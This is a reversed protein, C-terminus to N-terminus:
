VFLVDHKSRPGISAWVPKNMKPHTFKGLFLGLSRIVTVHFNCTEHSSKFKKHSPICCGKLSCYLKSYWSSWKEKKQVVTSITSWAMNSKLLISYVPGYSIILKVAGQYGPQTSFTQISVWIWHSHKTCTHEMSLFSSHCSESVFHLRM